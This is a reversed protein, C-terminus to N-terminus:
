GPPADRSYRYESALAWLISGTENMWLLTSGVYSGRTTKVDGVPSANASHPGVGNQRETFYRLSPQLPRHYGISILPVAMHAFEWAWVGAIPTQLPVHWPRDPPKVLHGLSSLILQKYLQNLRPEPTVYQMAPELQRDWHAAARKLAADFEVREMTSRAAAPALQASDALVFDVSRTEAPGLRVDFQWRNTFKEAIERDGAAVPLGHFRVPMSAGARCVAVIRGGHTLVTGQAVIGLPPTQWRSAPALFPGYCANQSGGMRGILLHLPVDQSKAGTNTVSMRVVVYQPESGTVVAEAGPLWAFATQALTIAGDSWESQVIPLYDDRLRRTVKSFDPVRAPTGIAFGFGLADAAPGLAISMDPQVFVLNPHHCAQVPVRYSLPTAMGLLDQWRVEVREKAVNDLSYTEALRASAAQYAARQRLTATLEPVELRTSIQFDDIAAEAGLGGGPLCGVFFVGQKSPMPREYSRIGQLTDDIYLARLRTGEDWCAVLHHWQGSRWDVPATIADVGGLNSFYVITHGDSGFLGLATRNNGGPDHDIAWFVRDGAVKPSDWNPRIWLDVTGSQPSYLGATAYALVSTAQLMAARGTRGAVFSVGKAERPSQGRNTELRDEFTIVCPEARAGPQWALCTAAVAAVAACSPLPRFRMM